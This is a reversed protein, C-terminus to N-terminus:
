GLLNIKAHSLAMYQVLSSWVKNRLPDIDTTNNRPCNQKNVEGNVHFYLGKQLYKVSQLGLYWLNFTLQLYM